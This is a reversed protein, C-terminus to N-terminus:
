KRKNPVRTKIKKEWKLLDSQRAYRKYPSVTFIPFGLEKEWKILTKRDIGYMSQLQKISYLKDEINM